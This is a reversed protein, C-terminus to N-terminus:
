IKRPITSIRPKTIRPSIMGWTKNPTFVKTIPRRKGIVSETLKEIPNQGLGQLKNM